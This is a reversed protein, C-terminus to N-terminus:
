DEHIRYGKSKLEAIKALYEQETKFELMFNIGYLTKEKQLAEKKTLQGYTQYYPKDFQPNHREKIWYSKKTKM